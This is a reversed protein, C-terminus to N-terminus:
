RHGTVGDFLLRRLRLVDGLGARTDRRRLLLQSRGLLVLILGDQGRGRGPGNCGHRAGDTLVRRAAAARGRAGGRTAGTRTARGGTARTGTEDLEGVDDIEIHLDAERLGVRGLNVDALCRRDREVRQGSLREGAPNEGEVRVLGHDAVDDGVVGLDSEVAGRRADLGAHGSGDVDHEVEAVTVTRPESPFSVLREIVMPNRPSLATSIVAPKFAPSRTTSVDLVALAVAVPNGPPRPPGAPPPSPPPSPPHTIGRDDSKTVDGLGVAFACGGDVRQAAHADVDCM